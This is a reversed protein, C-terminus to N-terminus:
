LVNEVAVLLAHSRGVFTSWARNELIPACNSKYVRLAECRVFPVFLFLKFPLIPQMHPVTINKGDQRDRGERRKQRKQKMATATATGAACLEWWDWAIGGSERSRSSRGNGSRGPM